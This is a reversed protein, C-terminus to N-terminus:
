KILIMSRSTKFDGAIIQYVYMGSAVRILHEDRGDWTVTYRGADRKENMLTRVLEGMVNYIRLEVKSGTPLEFKISTEPNFPNPYNQSLSFDAPLSEPKEIEEIGTSIPERSKSAFQVRSVHFEPNGEFDDQLVVPIASLADTIKVAGDQKLLYGLIQIRDQSINWLLRLGASNSRPLNRGISIEDGNYNLDVLFGRVQKETEVILPVSLTDGSGTAVPTKFTAEADTSVKGLPKAALAALLETNLDLINLFDFLDVDGDKDVDGRKLVESSPQGIGFLAQCMDLIGPLADPELYDSVAFPNENTNYINANGADSVRILYDDALTEPTNWIYKGDNLINETIKTWSNGRDRSYEVNVREISGFSKWIITHTSGTTWIEGGKPYAIALGSEPRGSGVNSGQRRKANGYRTSVEISDGTLGPPLIVRVRSESEVLIDYAEMGDFTVQLDYNDNVVGTIADLWGNAIVAYGRDNPHIPDDATFYEKKWDAHKKFQENIGVYRVRKNELVKDTVLDDLLDNLITIADDKSDNRPIASSVITTIGPDFADTADIIEAIKDRISEAALGASIDHTGIDLLVIDPHNRSLFDPMGALLEGAIWGGHGEHQNDFGTGDDEDGVFDFSIGEANLLEALDNRYGANDTAGHIGQTLSGGVPMIQLADSSGGGGNLIALNAGSITVETRFNVVSSSISTIVPALAAQGLAIFELYDVRAFEGGERRGLIEIESGGAIEIDPSVVRTTLEELQQDFTWSDVLSGDIRVEMTSEGDNEDAYRISFSYRGTEGPFDITATGTTGSLKINNGSYPSSDEREQVEYGSLTMDEAEVILDEPNGGGTSVVFNGGSLDTGNPTTVGIKGTTAGDPVYAIIETGSNVIFSSTSNNFTVETTGTFRVGTITVQTGIEGSAPTFGSIQPADDGPSGGLLVFELYDVRAFEGGERRGLIEIESGTAIEIDSNVIRTILEESQQDFVWSDVLSGNLRVEMTSEGDNEDAYRISFRYRGTEGPFDITATGTTGSLKINNGSYPSSAERVQVEYGSLTMDEAEIVVNEGGATTVIFDGESEDSGNPTFVGIKGTAAGDPVTAVIETNSNVTYSGPVNNFTVSTAGDFRVGTITVATGADGTTPTFTVIEPATPAPVISFVADSADSVGASIRVLAQSSFTSPISWDYSSDNVTNSIIEIWNSGNDVSYDLTVASIDGTSSWRVEATEGEVLTEGGNPYILTLTPHGGSTTVTFDNASVDTGNPTTVGIKGTTAGDPVSTVMETDSNVIFSSASNNFTVETAGNFRMGTITVQTGIEGSTPNFGSIQPADGGPSGGTLVFELYDVRAFEGGERRGLIEIETGRSMEIDPNVVRTILEESQQDFVWSDVPAGDVRVEMTSEGDNEDFYRISFRYRGTEGPFNISATGTSSSLKINNGSYPSSNERIQVEYGSLNMDEAEIFINEGGPTVVIFDNNSQDSGDSTVVGITGTTAGDPVTAVIETNATVTFSAPRSNFTVGTAGGFNAGLIRVVTGSVGSTPAFSAIQPPPTGNGGVEGVFELYDVRAFEGGNRSAEIGIVDGSNLTFDSAVQRTVFEGETTNADFVWSDVETNNIFVSMPCAGDEEDFYRILLDYSGPQGSFIYIASGNSNSLQIRQQGSYGSNDTVAYGDLTLTEAEIRFTEVGTGSGSISFRDDSQDLINEDNSDLIRVLASETDIDPPLWTYSGDNNENSAISIWSQGNNFSYEIDVEDVAGESIWNIDFAANPVLTEGGNPTLLTVSTPISKVRLEAVSIFHDDGGPAGIIRVGDGSKSAFLLTYTEFNTENNGQYPPISNLHLVNEWVGNSRVQVSFSDFWGGDDSNLGEQLVLKHFRHIEPFEYGIWDETRSLDSTYTDYQLLPDNEGTDPYIGDAIISIDTNGSGNPETILATPSGAVTIDVEAEPAISVYHTTTDTLGSSDTVRLEIELYFFDWPAGHEEDFTFTPSPGSFNAHEPHSHDNHHLAIEWNFDLNSTPEDPDSATGNLQLPGEIILDEGNLPSIIRATPPTSGVVIELTYPASEDFPDTVTLTVAFTGNDTFTYVPNAENASDGTGFDWEYTLDDEDPDFSNSGTFQVQLPAYGWVPSASAIAVPPDNQGGATYRIRNVRGNFIDVYHLDGSVPSAKLDVLGQTGTAFDLLEVLDDDEDLVVAKIWGTEFDAIFLTGHYEEPYRNGLYFTGAIGTFGTYGTPKSRSGDTHHWYILPDSPDAPNEPSGISSCDSHDPDLNPYTQNEQEAVFCPWGFNEGGYSVNLEEFQGWGVDAICLTGPDGAEPNSSGNPRLCFRFPNRLGYAWVRSRPDSSDGTYYPNSPLGLGTEPDIRLIKGALTGLYQARFAGIDQDESLKGEGFCDPHLGGADQSSSPAGDGSGVFLTGDSGFRVSGIGHSTHCNPIGTSWDEGILVLRSSLDAVNPNSSSASYRTLRGFAGADDDVRDGNPDVGYLLYIYGNSAFEPNLTIGLLGRDGNNLIEDELNIFPQVLKTGNEVIFVKGGKEAVFLRGDPAFAIGTPTVFTAGSAVNEVIFDPPLTQGALDGSILTLLSGLTV